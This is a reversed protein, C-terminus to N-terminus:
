EKPTDGPQPAQTSKKPSKVEDAVAQPAAGLDASAAAAEAAAKQAATWADTRAKVADADAKVAAQVAAAHAQQQDDSLEDWAVWGSRRFGVAHAVAGPLAPNFLDVM